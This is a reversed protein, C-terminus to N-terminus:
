DYTGMEEIRGAKMVAIKDYGEIIDLRHVVAVLTSKGKWRSELVKQVRDQSQNDLSATAEDLLLIAPKKLFARALALKQRQGGSLNDGGRGVEFKMGIELVAELLAEEVLLRNINRHIRNKVGADDSTIRGFIINELITAGPIYDDPKYFIVVGPAEKQLMKMLVRRAAVIRSTLSESLAVMDHVAPIYRLSLGLLRRRHKEPLNQPPLKAAKKITQQLSEMEEYLVPINRPLITMYGFDDLVREGFRRGVDILPEMLQEELLFRTFITNRALREECFRKEVATGFLLNEAISAHYLYHNADFVEVDGTAEEAYTDHFEARVELVANQLHRHAEPDFRASLGFGLVDIFLGTQQLVEIQENLDPLTKQDAENSFGIAARCAYLLNEQISGSFIAPSQFVFGINASLDRRGLESISRGDLEYHGDFIPYLGMLCNVLTSKGSGSGGVLAMHEGPALSFSVGQLLPKGEPTAFFLNDVAMGGKLRVLEGDVPKPDKETEVAYYDMTRQYTVAATQYVQYFRILEKWPVYLKEQASLFAVLAGLELRGNIALYGGLAFILFRSFNTFLNNVVKVAFRYINWIIRIKRLREIREGLYGSEINFAANAKIEHIGEVTEGIRGSYSRNADVRKKNYHNVRKQLPPVILLVAPYISFSVAALLPNLWFLYGAFALLTLVNSLPVAVAMGVFDGATALESTMSSVILGSQTKRFFSQPLTLIHGYLQRRMEALTNQGIISQLANIGFKLGSATVFAALYIGCYLVLLDVKKLEIAENVIRKQMELPVVRAFVAVIVILLLVLQLKFNRGLTWSFLSRNVIPVKHNDM